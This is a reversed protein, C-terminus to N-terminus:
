YLRLSCLIADEPPNAYYSKRLGAEEFGLTSYLRRAGQNSERVELFIRNGGTARVHSIFENVLSTGVGRRRFEKAVAVYQLEWDSDVCHAALYGVMSSAIASVTLSKSEPPDEAVLVFYRSLEPATRFLSKYHEHSWNVSTPNERELELMLPIDAATAPRIRV